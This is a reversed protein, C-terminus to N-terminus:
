ALDEIGNCDSGGCALIESAHLFSPFVRGGCFGIHTPIGFIEDVRNVGEFLGHYLSNRSTLSEVTKGPRCRRRVAQPPLKREIRRSFPPRVAPLSAQIEESRM